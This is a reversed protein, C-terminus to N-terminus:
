TTCVIMSSVELFSRARDSSLQRSGQLFSEALRIADSCWGGSCCTSLPLHLAECFPCLLKAPLTPPGALGSIITIHLQGPSM